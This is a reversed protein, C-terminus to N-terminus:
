RVFDQKTPRIAGAIPTGPKINGVLNNTGNLIQSAVWTQNASDWASQVLSNNIDQFYMCYHTAGSSDVWNVSALNSNPLLSTTNAIARPSSASSKCVLGGVVGGVVAGIILAASVGLAIWFTRRSLGCITARKSGLWPLDCPTPLAPASTAIPVTYQEVKVGSKPAVEVKSKPAMEVKSKSAVELGSQPAVELGSKPAVELTSYTKDM